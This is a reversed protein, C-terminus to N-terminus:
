PAASAPNAPAAAAVARLQNITPYQLWGNQAFPGLRLPTTYEGHQGLQRLAAVMSSATYPDKHELLLIAAYQDLTTGDNSYITHTFSAGISRMLQVSGFTGTVLSVAMVGITVGKRIGQGMHLPAACAYFILILSLLMIAFSGYPGYKGLLSNVIPVPFDLVTQLVIAVAILSIRWRQEDNAFHTVSNFCATLFRRTTALIDMFFTM